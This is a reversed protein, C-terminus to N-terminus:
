QPAVLVADVVAILGQSEVEPTSAPAAAPTSPAAAPASIWRYPFPEIKQRKNGPPPPHTLALAPPPPSTVQPPTLGPHPLHGPGPLLGQAQTSRRTTMCTAQAQHNGMPCLSLCQRCFAGASRTVIGACLRSQLALETRLAAAPQCPLAPQTRVQAPQQMLTIGTASSCCSPLVCIPNRTWCM